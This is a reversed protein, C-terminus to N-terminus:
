FLEAAKSLLENRLSHRGLEIQFQTEVHKVLRTIEAIDEKTAQNEGKKTVYQKGYWVIGVLIVQLILIVVLLSDM